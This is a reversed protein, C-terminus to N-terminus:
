YQAQVTGTKKINNGDEGLIEIHYYYMGAQVKKNEFTGDWYKGIENSEFLKEGWRNFIKINFDKIYEGKIVFLENHNDGNPTFISPIFIQTLPTLYVIATDTATCGNEDIVFIYYSGSDSVQISSSLTDGYYAYDSSWEYYSYSGVSLEAQENQYISIESPSIEPVPLPNVIIQTNGISIAVCGNANRAEVVSYLGGESTTYTYTTDNISSMSRSILGDTFILEWPFLGKFNFDVDLYDGYCISGGGSVTVTDPADETIYIEDSDSCGYLDLVTVTHNGEGINISSETSGNSWVYSYPQTGGVVNPFISTTTNCPINYDLGLDAQPPSEYFIELTDRGYCGYIDTVTLYYLGDSLSVSDESSVLSLSADEWLYTFPSSGGLIAVPGYYSNSNCAITDTDKIFDFVLGDFNFDIQPAPEYFIEITDVGYCGYTDTVTLSYIGDGIMIMTDTEGTNWLYTYPSTGGSIVPDVLTDSGCSI